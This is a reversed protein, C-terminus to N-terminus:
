DRAVSIPPYVRLAKMRAKDNAATRRPSGTTLSAAFAAHSGDVLKAFAACQAANSARMTHALRPYVPWDVLSSCRVRERKRAKLGLTRAPHAEM